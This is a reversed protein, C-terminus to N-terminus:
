GNDPVKTSASTPPCEPANPVVAMGAAENGDFIYIARGNDCLKYVGNDVQSAIIEPQTLGEATTLLVATPAQATDGDVAPRSCSTLAIACLVALTRARM